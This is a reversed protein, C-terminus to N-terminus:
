NILSRIATLNNFNHIQFARVRPSKYAEFIIHKLYFVFVSTFDIAKLARGVIKIIRNSKASM